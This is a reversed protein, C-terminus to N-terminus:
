SGALENAKTARALRKKWNRKSPSQALGQIYSVVALTPLDTFARVDKESRISTDRYELLASIAAGLLVGILFGGISFVFPNPFVPQDPLNAADLVQFQEGQQRRELNTAMSSENMKSLLNNYFQLASEHDRTLQKYQQEVV